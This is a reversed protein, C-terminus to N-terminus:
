MGATIPHFAPSTKQANGCGCSVSKKGICKRKYLLNVTANPLEQLKSLFFQPLSSGDIQVTIATKMYNNYFHKAITFINKIKISNGKIQNQV